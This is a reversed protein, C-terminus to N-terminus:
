ETPLSANYLNFYIYKCVPYKWNYEPIDRKATGPIHIDFQTPCNKIKKNVDTPIHAIICNGCIKSYM